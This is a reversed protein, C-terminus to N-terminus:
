RHLCSAFSREGVLVSTVGARNTGPFDFVVWSVGDRSEVTMVVERTSVIIPVTPAATPTSAASATAAKSDTPPSRLSQLLTTKGAGSEGVTILKVRNLAERAKKRDNYVSGMFKLMEDPDSRFALLENPLKDLPNGDIGFSTLQGSLAGLSWPLTHLKNGSLWM